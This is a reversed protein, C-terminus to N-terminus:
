LVGRFALVGRLAVGFDAAAKRRWKTESPYFMEAYRNRVIQETTENSAGNWNLRNEDITNRLSQISAVTGDGLTGFEFCTSYLQKGPYETKKLHYFYESIDGSAAYFEESDPTFVLPYRFAEVAEQEKMTESMTTFISMQYRPGYGTHVDIHTISEYDSELVDRFMGKMYATAPEDQTGGYYVGQPSRYQGTLLADAIVGIGPSIAKTAFASYFGLEHHTAYGLPRSSELFSQVKPYDLNVDLNFSKWDPIFNRNLDVNNENYRRKHKMGWPNVSHVLLIGTTEPNLESAHQKVLLDLMASGVFGEVGHVGTTILLLNKKAGNPEAHLSDTYLGPEGGVAESTLTVKKWRQMLSEQYTLFRARSSNYDTPYADLVPDGQGAKDPRSLQLLATPAALEVLILVALLVLLLRNKKRRLLRQIMSPISLTM